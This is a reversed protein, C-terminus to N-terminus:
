SSQRRQGTLDVVYATDHNNPDKLTLHLTVKTPVAPAATCDDGSTGLCGVTPPTSPDLDHALMVDSPTPSGDCRIRHLETPGAATPKVVYAVSVVTKAGGADFDDWALRAIAIPTGLPGCPHLGSDYTVNKEVSQTFTYAPGASRTGISAVDQAWYASAIQVDHSEILRATTADANRLYGIVVNSLPVTIIGLIVVAVLLEVLTFGGDAGSGHLRPRSRM